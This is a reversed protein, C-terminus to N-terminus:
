KPEQRGCSDEHEQACGPIARTRLGHVVIVVIVVNVVIVVIVVNVVIVLTVVTGVDGTLRRRGRSRRLEQSRDLDGFDAATVADFTFPRRTM